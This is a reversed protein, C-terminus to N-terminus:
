KKRFRILRAAVAILSVLIAALIPVPNIDPKRELPVTIRGDGVVVFAGWDCPQDFLSDHRCQKRALTLAEAVDHGTALGEYFASMFFATAEDDVPWLAAVVTPVGAALFASALGMIGEDTVAQETPSTCRALVVLSTKLQLGTLDSARIMLDPNTPHLLIASRGPNHDDGVADAAVHILDFSGLLDLEPLSGSGNPQIVTVGKYTDGLDQLGWDAALPKPSGIEPTSGVALTKVKHSSAQPSPDRRLDALVTVSPVRSFKMEKAPPLLMSTPILNFLGDAALILHNTPGFLDQFGGLFLESVEATALRLSDPDADRQVALSLLRALPPHLTDQGPLRVMRSGTRTVAIILSEQNGASTSLFLEGAALTTSQFQKLSIDPSIAAWLSELGARSEENGTDARPGGPSLAMAAMIVGVIIILRSSM